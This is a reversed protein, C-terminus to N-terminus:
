QDPPTPVNAVPQSSRLSVGGGLARYANVIASLQEMKTDIVVTRADMLDRQALLVEVYEVRANQFLDSASAVSAELAKLQLKKIEISRSYNEVKALQNVVETFANLVVRQYNYAAQLQKANANMYDAQIAKKNLLPAVLSGAVNAVFAEPNLLYRPNFAEYGVNGTIILKPFFNARAVRVDLGAAVLEREAQRIDPRNRLLESPIGINVTNITLDLFEKSARDVRQPYRNLSFNIRNEVEIIEQNVVLKESQNKRVEALFRQVALETGRGADFKDKAIKASKEQLTIIQDLTELRKDLARLRYYNEANEAVLRTVFFNRRDIAATYREAAADRANRLQRWIDIQWIVNVGGIVDGLPSPFPRGPIIDLNADVAGGRTYRSPKDWGAGAGVSFFPWYAGRRALVENQAIRVEEDLIKLERNNALAAEILQTLDSENFFEEAGLHASNETSTKGGFNDPMQPMSEAPRLHPIACAPLVMLLSGVLVKVFAGRGITRHLLKKAVNM